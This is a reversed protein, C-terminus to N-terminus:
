VKEEMFMADVTEKPSSMSFIPNDWIEEPDYVHAQLKPNTEETQDVELWVISYEQEGRKLLLFMGPYFPDNNVKVTITGLKTNVEMNNGCKRELHSGGM